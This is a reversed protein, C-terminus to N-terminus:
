LTALLKEIHFDVYKIEADYKSILYDMDNESLFKPSPLGSYTPDKKYRARVEKEGSLAHVNGKKVLDRGPPM